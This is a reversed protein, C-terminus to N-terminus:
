NVSQLDKLEPQVYESRPLTKKKLSSKKKSKQTKKSKGEETLGMWKNFWWCTDEKCAPIYEKWDVATMGRKGEKMERVLNEMSGIPHATSTDAYDEVGRSDLLPLDIITDLASFKTSACVKLLFALDAPKEDWKSLDKGFHAYGRIQEGVSSLKSVDVLLEIQVASRPGLVLFEKNLQIAQTSLPNLVLKLCMERDTLPNRLVLRRRTTGQKEVPVLLERSLLTHHHRAAM